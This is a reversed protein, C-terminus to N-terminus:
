IRLTYNMKHVEEFPIRCKNEWEYRHVARTVPENEEVYEMLIVKRGFKTHRAIERFATLLTIGSYTSNRHDNEDFSMVIFKHAKHFEIVEKQTPKM